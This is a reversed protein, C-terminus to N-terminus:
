FDGLPQGDDRAGLRQFTLLNVTNSIFRVSGDGLAASVGGPHFSRPPIIGYGWDQAGGPCCTGGCSPFEWNPPAATNFLSHAHAYWAWLTGNNSPNGTPSKCDTGIADLEVKTPFFKNVVADYKGNGGAPYFVDYPYTASGTNGDGSLFESAMITNSLGDRVEAITHELHIDFMGNFGATGGTWATNVSSGSCWGYNTGPGGWSCNVAKFRNASPCLFVSLSVQMPGSYMAGWGKKFSFQDYLPQQELYPLISVNASFREWQYWGADAGGYSDRPFTQYAAHYNHMALALQKLHNTCEARRAAERAAQVAPLLLAILIGIITIVVLLEVLTFGRGSLRRPCHRLEMGNMIDEFVVPFIM